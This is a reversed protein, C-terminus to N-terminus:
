PRDHQISRQKINSKKTIPPSASKCRYCLLLQSIIHMLKFKVLNFISIIRVAQLLQVLFVGEDKNGIRRLKAKLFRDIELIRMMSIVVCKKRDPHIPNRVCAVINIRDNWRIRAPDM